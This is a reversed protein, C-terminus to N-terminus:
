AFGGSSLGSKKIEEETHVNQGGTNEATRRDDGGDAVAFFAAGFDDEIIWTTRVKM